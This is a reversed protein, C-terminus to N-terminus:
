RAGIVVCDFGDRWLCSTFVEYRHQESEGFIIACWTPDKLFGFVVKSCDSVCGDGNKFSDLCCLRM